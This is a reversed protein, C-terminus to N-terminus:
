ASHRVAALDCITVTQDAPHRYPSPRRRGGNLFVWASLTMEGAINLLPSDAVTINSAADGPFMM